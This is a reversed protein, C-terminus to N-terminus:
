IPDAPTSNDRAAVGHARERLVRLADDLETADAAALGPVLTMLAMTLASDPEPVIASLASMHAQLAGFSVEAGHLIPAEPDATAAATVLGHLPVTAVEETATAPQDEAIRADGVAREPDDALETLLHVYRDAIRAVTEEDFLDTAYIFQARLAGGRAERDPDNPFFTLALDVKASTLEEHEPEVTLGDLRLVPFDVNQFALMVQFVPNHATPPRSMLRSVIEDFAVDAHSMDALDDGRVRGLLDLFSESKDVRTRLALTNVFMGVVDELLPEGRGAFPTGIVIDDRGSLRALLVAFVAHTVMFQTTHYKRSMDELTSVVAAPIEFDVAAGRYSPTRPRPRDAPLELIEPLGALRDEWYRLQREQESVGDDVVALRESLWMSFDAYQVPLPKWAPEAGGHRAAYAAMLDRALPMMSAGDASIHHIVFVLVHEHASIRLLVARVPPAVTIDFGEGTIEAIQAVPSPGADRIELVVDNDLADAPMIVQVPEGNIMPYVTRLAEHRRSLDVTAQTLAAVDLHGSLRLAMAVNYAASGPEARNILWLGRQMGSVHVLETRSRAHLAPIGHGTPGSTLAAALASVTPREFLLKVQVQRDLLASLRATVKTASLSSGGLHFFDADASVRDLGLVQGFVGAVVMELQSAPPRYPATETFDVAPLSARDIKGSTTLRFRDVVVLTHPVMYGALRTAAHELIHAPETAAGAVLTAYAVLVDEGNPAPVGLCVADAVLPHDVIAAEVEGPEIRLGRIKLQFDTRGIYRLDGRVTRIVRDGTRYMRAGSDYPDAVFRTATLASRRHYGRALQVGRLYLEGPVGTPVPRLGRDLVVAGVGPIPAGITVEDHESMPGAATAWITVETPGYLNHFRRGAKAWKRMLDPPCAEGVSIVRRLRPVAAPEITSLASPTMVAHTVGQERILTALEDGGFVGNPSIVLRAGEGLGMLIEFVSADFSPSAVHLVRSDKTLRLITRQNAVVNALGRHSVAAAKPRGTSGSTYILYALDDLRPTRVLEDTGLPAGSHGALRFEAAPQGIVLWSLTDPVRDTAEAVCLGTVAGSDALIEEIRGAPLAPDISVFGAGTAAVALLAIVSHHSRPICIAVIDGPGVGLSILERALQNSRATLVSWTIESTGSIAVSDPDAKLAGGHLLDRLLAAPAVPEAVSVLEARDDDTTVDITGVRRGPSEVMARLVLELQAAVREATRREFVDAAYSLEVDYGGTDPQDTLTISLDFKAAPVRADVQRASSDFQQLTTAHGPHMTMAVQFLPTHSASREPALVDVVWEFPIDAHRVARTRCAHARDLLDGVTDGSSVATRLVVTNVFMGVLESTAPEDRGAVATGIAVEDVEAWRALLVALASHVVTFATVGHDRALGRVAMALDADLSADVYAGNGTAVHPRPRDTPLMLLDPMGALEQEWFTLGAAARDTPSDLSGLLERQWIAFDAYQVALPELDPTAGDRRRTYGVMLDRILPQLSFGDGAIHHLVTVVAYGDADHLIRIRFPIEHVLDFGRAADAAILEELRGEADFVETDLLGMAEAAPLIEQVPEGLHSGFRTRLTEHREVLSEISDRLADVDVDHGLRVAGPMNYTAAGPDMRNVFWLRTQAHSLPVVAPREVRRLEPRDDQGGLESRAAIEGVDVAAFVTTLDVRLNRENRARSVLRAAMLSDGGLAFINDRLGIREVGLLETLLGALALEVPTRPAVYEVSRTLEPAPLRKRDLKGSPNLPFQDLLMAAVPVMHSPLHRRCWALATGETVEDSEARLYAVLVPASALDTRPIVASAEVGPLADLVSEIEGPEVRQGRIKIQFDTRGLYHLTGDDAWRVLDGTRYMRTGTPGFPDAVFRESTLAPRGVYGDALQIGALYLEGAVGVPVPALAEDLVHVRTNAVPRGIPVPGDDGVVRCETVDVAAETPGYLNVVEASSTEIVRDALHRPLAEGSTFLYRVSPPLLTDYGENALVETYVDLMSPVFHLVSVGRREILERLYAPDRHGGPAAIVMRAGRALPWLLEWVSVDFTFPTKYLVVDGPTLAYNDQMWALRNLVAEHSVRVGKPVGTSGSTFIVYAAGAGGGVPPFSEDTAPGGSRIDVSEIDVSEIDVAFGISSLHESDLVVRADVTDAILQRRQEPQGPDVPVYAAGVSLVAYIAAVQAVGRDLAVVVHDGEGVGSARLSHALRRRLDDLERYTWSRTEFEVAVASPREGVMKEFGHLLHESPEPLPRVPGVGLGLLEDRESDLLLDVDGIPTDLASFIRELFVLFRDLHGRLDDEDYLHPNGHLDVVIRAGPSAQYLNLRLDELIGSSLIQYDITAGELEMPKDFFMMNVIPGFSATNADQLGADIRIDEFRYRQHRLVGTLELQAQDVLARLSLRSTDRFRVPLMNSLMGAARKIRATARGTVPLSLVVDDTGAMRSLFAAFGASLLVAPSTNLSAAFRDLTAQRAPDLEAGAVVNVPSLPVAASQRALTVREPLDRVREAWYDRDAQRRTGDAYKRDDAVLEALKAAPKPSYDAGNLSANYRNLIDVVITLAAYGDLAIHHARVYWFVRDDAVRLLASVVLRDALLDMSSRYDANMWERAAVVPNVEGRFDILEVDNDLEQDVVQMPVGDVEVIRTFAMETERGVEVIVRALLHEDLPRDRDKIDIYQAVTVSYDPSLSEAFWMGRQAATLELLTVATDCDEDATQQQRM